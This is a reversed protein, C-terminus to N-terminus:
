RGSAAPKGPPYQISAAGLVLGTDPSQVLVIAHLSPQKWDSKIPLNVSTEFLGNTTTGLQKLNRVVASHNLIRGGNEGGRVNTTLDDETIALFVRQRGHASDEVTVQLKEPSLLRLSVSSPKASKSAEAIMRRVASANNGVGQLHGDVVMQPTYPSALHLQRVYDYQRQTFVPASFRDTWGQQNWYEVHEELLILETNGAVHQRNLEALLADAPPCDSCGESTFLEVVVPQQAFAPFRGFALGVVALVIGIALPLAKKHM